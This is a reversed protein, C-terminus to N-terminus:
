NVMVKARSEFQDHLLDLQHRLNGDYVRDGVRVVVGGLLTPDVALHLRVARGTITELEARMKEAQEPSLPRAARVRAEVVGEREDVLATYAAVVAPALGERQKRVLLLLFSSVLPHVRGEFLRRVIAEKKV